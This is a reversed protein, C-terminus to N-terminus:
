QNSHAPLAGRHHDVAKKWASLCPDQLSTKRGTLQDSLGEALVPVALETTFSFGAPQECCVEAQVHLAEGMEASGWSEQPGGSVGLGAQVTGTPQNCQFVHHIKAHTLGTGHSGLSRAWRDM